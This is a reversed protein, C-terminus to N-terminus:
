ASHRMRNDGKTTAQNGIPSSATRVGDVYSAKSDDWSTTVDASVSGVPEAGVIAADEIATQALQTVERTMATDVACQEDEGLALRVVGLNAASSGTQVIPREAGDEGPVPATYNYTRHSDGNFIADVEASTSGVIKDFIPDTNQPATGPEASSSAGEHYSAVLVDYEVGDAAMEEVVDNVADVPDGFTRGEIATPSVKGGAKTTAAGLVAVEGGDQELVTDAEHIREGTAAAYVNAALDPFDTRPEIRELLDDVGQDYEHNGIAT